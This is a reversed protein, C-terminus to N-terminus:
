VDRAFKEEVAKVFANCAEDDRSGGNIVIAAALNKKPWVGYCASLWPTGGAHVGREGLRQGELSNWRKSTAPKLLPDKGQAAALEYQAFLALDRASMHANGAARFLVEPPRIVDPEPAYGDPRQVHLWPQAPHEVTSPRGWGTQTLKLPKFVHEDMLAEYSKGSVKAAIYAALMYSANSYRAEKGIQGAPPLQLVHKVVRLEREALTGEVDFLEPTIKPGVREYGAIGGTFALLQAITVTRYEDRMPVDPLASALTTDFSLKGEDVLRGIMVGTMRKTCSGISFRDDIKIADEAGMQRIGTVGEAIVKGDRMVVGAAGPLSTQKRVANLETSLDATQASATALNLVAIACAALSVSRRSAIPSHLPRM